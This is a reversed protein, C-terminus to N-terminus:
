LSEPWWVLVRLRKAFHLLPEADPLTIGAAAAMSNEEFIAEATQLPWPVHHIQARSVQGHDVVYLCYRETLFHELTGPLSERPPAIARYEARLAAQGRARASRYRVRDGSVAV